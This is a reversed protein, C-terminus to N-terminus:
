NLDYYFTFQVDRYDNPIELRMEPPWPMFPAPDLIAQECFSEMLESVESQVMKMGTIRGDPLLRFELQVKGSGNPSHGEWLQDWKAKVVAVFQADYNGVATGKVDLSPTMTARNVGGDQHTQEGLTGNRAMAEAITRPRQYTPQPQPQAAVATQAESKSDSEQAKEAPRAMAMDGPTYEKKPAVAQKAVEPKPPAPAAQKAVEPQPRPTPQLPQAKPKGNETTKLVKDQKGRIDPVDSPKTIKPNGALTSQAGYFKPTKPAEHVANEPDVEVFMLPSQPQMAAAMTKPVAPALAQTVVQMWRPVTLNAWWGRSQGMKYAFFALFHILLSIILARLILKETMSPENAHATTVM